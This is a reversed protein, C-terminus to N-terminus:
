AIVTYRYALVMSVCFCPYGHAFKTTGDLPDIHWRYESHSASEHGSGEEAAIAHEPFYETLRKVIAAESRRDAQTVLDVDGKYSIQLPRDFEERLIKGAEVAVETAAQLYTTTAM